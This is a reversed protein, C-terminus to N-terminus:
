ARKNRVVVFEVLKLRAIEFTKGNGGNGGGGGGKGYATSVSLGATLLLIFLRMM